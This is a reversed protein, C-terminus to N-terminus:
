WAKWPAKNNVWLEQLTNKDRLTDMPAWFGDHKYVTLQNNAALSELPEKEWATEDNQIYDIVKPSLVFFGGNIWAGDGQPKEKFRTVKDNQIELAGFRGQPLVATLTALSKSNIHTAYM